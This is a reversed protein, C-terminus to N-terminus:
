FKVQLMVYIGSNYSDFIVDPLGDGNVDAITVNRPYLSDFVPIGFAPSFEWAASRSTAAIAMFSDSISYIVLDDLRDGNMDKVFYIQAAGLNIEQGKTFSGDSSHLYPVNSVLTGPKTSVDDFFIDSLGDGNVDFVRMEMCSYFGACIAEANKTSNANLEFVGPLGQSYVLVESTKTMGTVPSTIANFILEPKGDQDLDAVGIEYRGNGTFQSTKPVFPPLLKLGSSSNLIIQIGFVSSTSPSNNAIIDVRSDGDVDYFDVNQVYDSQIFQSLAYQGSQDAKFVYLGSKETSQYETSAGPVIIEPRGDNDLDTVLIKKADANVVVELKQSKKFVGQADQLFINLTFGNRVVQNVVDLTALEVIDTRGDGSIDATTIYPKDSGFVTPDRPTLQKPEFIAVATRFSLHYDNPLISGNSAKLGAKITLQYSTRANLPLVPTVDILTGGSVTVKIPISSSGDSLLVQNSSIGGSTVASDVYVKLDARPDVGQSGDPFGTQVVKLPVAQAPPEVPVTGSAGGGGGGGCAALMVSLGICAVFRV